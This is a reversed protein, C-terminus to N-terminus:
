SSCAGRRIIRGGRGATEKFLLQATVRYRSPVGAPDPVALLPLSAATVVINMGPSPQNTPSTPHSGGCTWHLTSLVWVFALTIKRSSLQATGLIIPLCYGM